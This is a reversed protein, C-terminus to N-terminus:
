FGILKKQGKKQKLTKYTAWSKRVFAEYKDMHKKLFEQTYPDAPYGSGIPHGIAKEIIKIERDRATKALISAAAVVAYNADAKHECVLNIKKNDLQKKIYEKYKALNPSPSDIIAKDPKLKNVIKATKDAELWNLNTEKSEVAADIEKPQVIIIEYDKVIEKIKKFLDERQKPTLLKSDKAGINKLRDQDKEEVIIGAIVLPGIM